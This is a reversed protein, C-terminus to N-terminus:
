IWLHNKRVWFFRGSNTGGMGLMNMHTGWQKKPINGYTGIGMMELANSVLTWPKWCKSAKAGRVKRFRPWSPLSPTAQTSTGAFVSVHSPFFPFFMLCKFPKWWCFYPYIRYIVQMVMYLLGYLCTYVMYCGNIVLWNTSTFTILDTMYALQWRDM